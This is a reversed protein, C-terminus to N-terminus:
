KQAFSVTGDAAKTLTYTKTVSYGNSAKFVAQLTHEGATISSTNLTVAFPMASSAGIQVGDLTYTVNVSQNIVDCYARLQINGSLGSAGNLKTFSPATQNLTKVLTPNNAVANDYAAKVTSNGNLTYTYGGLNKDFHVIAKVQPYVMNLTGYLETIRNAAFASLNESGSPIAYGSGSETVMVPKNYKGALDVVHEINKVADAYQNLGFYMDNVDGASSPSNAYQYKNLYLSVGVWDVLSSDPWFSEMDEGWPSAYSPSFVLAVNPAINRAMNAIRTYATKFEAPTTKTTWVNMEGGIRLFAPGNLTAMYSLTENIAGDLSGSNVQSVTNGESPFNLNILIAKSGDDFEDIKWAFDDASNHGSGLEVYFSVISSNKADSEYSENYCRGYLVGSTPENKAGYYPAQANTVTYVEAMPDIKRIREKAMIVADTFNLYTGTDIVGQLAENAKQMKGMGEYLSYTNYYVNYRVGATDTDMPLGSYYNLLAEGTSIMANADGSQQAQQFATLYPWYGSPHAGYAAVGGFLSLGIGLAAARKFVKRM